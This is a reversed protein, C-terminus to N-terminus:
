NKKAKVLYAWHVRQVAPRLNPQVSTASERVPVSQLLYLSSRLAPLFHHPPPLHLISPFWKESESYKCFKLEYKVWTSIQPRHFDSPRANGGPPVNRAAVRDCWPNASSAAILLSHLRRHQEKDSGPAEQSSPFLQIFCLAAEMTSSDVSDPFTLLNCLYLHELLLVQFSQRGVSSTM